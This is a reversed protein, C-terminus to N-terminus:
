PDKNFENGYTDTFPKTYTAKYFEKNPDLMSGFPNPTGILNSVEVDPIDLILKSSATNVNGAYDTATITYTIIGEKALSGGFYGDWEV